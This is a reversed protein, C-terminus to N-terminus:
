LRQDTVSEQKYPLFTPPFEYIGELPKFSSMMLWVVPGFM